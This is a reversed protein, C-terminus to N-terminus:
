EIIEDAGVLMSQPIAVGIEKAAALNVALRFRNAYQVPLNSVKEGRLIRDVYGAGGLSMETTDPGYSLLGGQVVYGRDYYLTPLHHRSALNVLLKGDTGVVRATPTIILGGAPRDAFTQIARELDTANEVALLVVDVGLASGASQASSVYTGISAPGIPFAVRTLSPVADKLLQVWKGGVSPPLFAFGTTNAEPRALSKVVGTQVPDGSGLFVIPISRTQQQLATIAVNGNTVIVDPVSEVLEKALLRIRQTDANGFRAEIRLNRGEFWGSDALGRRLGALLTATFPNDEESLMLVGVRHVRESQQARAMVPWTAASGVGAIFERRRM